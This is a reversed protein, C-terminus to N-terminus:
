FLFPAAHLVYLSPNLSLTILTGEFGLDWVLDKLWIRDRQITVEGRSGGGKEGQIQITYRWFRTKM